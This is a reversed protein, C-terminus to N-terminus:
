LQRLAHLAADGTAARPDMRLRHLDRPQGHKPRCDGTSYDFRTFVMSRVYNEIDHLKGISTSTEAKAKIADFNDKIWLQFDRSPSTEFIFVPSRQM